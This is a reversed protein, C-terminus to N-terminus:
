VWVGKLLARAHCTENDVVFPTRTNAVRVARGAGVGDNGSSGSLDVIRLPIEPRGDDVGSLATQAHRESISLGKLNEFVIDSAIEECASELSITDLAELPEPHPAM